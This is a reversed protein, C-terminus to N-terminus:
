IGLLLNVLYLGIVLSYYLCNSMKMFPMRVIYFVDENLKDIMQNSYVKNDANYHQKLDAVKKSMSKNRIEDFLILMFEKGAFFKLPIIM